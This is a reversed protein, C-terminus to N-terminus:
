AIGGAERLLARLEDDCARLQGPFHRWLWRYVRRAAARQENTHGERRQGPVKYPEVPLGASQRTAIKMLDRMLADANEPPVPLKGRPTEMRRLRELEAKWEPSNLPPSGMALRRERRRELDTTSLSHKRMVLERIADRWKPSGTPLERIAIWERLNRVLKERETLQKKSV